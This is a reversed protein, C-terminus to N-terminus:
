SALVETSAFKKPLLFSTLYGKHFARYVCPLEALVASIVIATTWLRNQWTEVWSWEDTEHRGNQITVTRMYNQQFSNTKKVRHYTMCM